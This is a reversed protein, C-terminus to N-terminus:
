VLAVPKDPFLDPFHYIELLRDYVWLSPVPSVSTNVGVRLTGVTSCPESPFGPSPIFAISGFFGHIPFLPPDSSHPPHLKQQGEREQCCGHSTPKALM